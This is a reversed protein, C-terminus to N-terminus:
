ITKLMYVVLNRSFYDIGRGLIHDQFLDKWM